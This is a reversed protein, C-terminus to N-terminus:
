YMEKNKVKELFVEQNVGRNIMQDYRFLESSFNKSKDEYWYENPNRKVEYVEGRKNNLLKREENRLEDLMTEYGKVQTQHGEGPKYGAHYVRMQEPRILGNTVGV